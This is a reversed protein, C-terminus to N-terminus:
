LSSLKEFETLLEKQRGSLRTPIDIHVEIYLDGPRGTHLDPMGKSKVRFIKNPQTGPPIKMDVTGDMTPVTLDGGLCAKTFPIKRELYLNPGKRSFTDHILVQTIVYLDGAPGGLEGAEGKGRVRIATGNDVGPPIKVTIQSKEKVKGRGGCERCPSDIIEGRGGCKPCPQSFSFFGGFASTQQGTGQCRPCTKKSTGPKMGNGSCVPCVRTNYYQIKKESGRFAEELTLSIHYELDAGRSQGGRRSGRSGFFSDFGSDGFGGGGEGGGGGGGGFGMNRLIDFISSDRFIDDTTYRGDIGAHGYQDYQSKKNPDSLVAYAESIEKFQERAADKKEPPVRDPHCQVAIKRYAQEIEQASATKPVGLLEYYDHKTTV